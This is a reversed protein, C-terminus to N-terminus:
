FIGWDSENELPYLGDPLQNGPNLFQLQTSVLSLGLEGIMAGIEDMKMNVISCMVFYDIKGGFYETWSDNFSGGHFLKISFYLAVEVFIFM